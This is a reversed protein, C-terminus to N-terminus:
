TAHGSRGTAQETATWNGDLQACTAHFTPCCSAAPAGAAGHLYVVWFSEFWFSEFWFSEFGFPNSLWFSEFGFPNLVNFKWLRLDGMCLRIWKPGDFGCRYLPPHQNLFRGALARSHCWCTGVSGGPPAPHTGGQNVIPKKIAKSSNQHWKVLKLYLLFPMAFRQPTQDGCRGALM